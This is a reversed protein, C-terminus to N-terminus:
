QYVQNHTGIDFFIVYDSSEQKYIIRIDGTVWFANFGKKAGTLAHNKLLPIKPDKQFLKIRDATQRVVKANHMIRSKYSKKFRSNLEITM